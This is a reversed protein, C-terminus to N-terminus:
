EERLERMTAMFEEPSIGEFIKQIAQITSGPPCADLVLFDTATFTRMQWVADIRYWNGYGHLRLREGLLYPAL